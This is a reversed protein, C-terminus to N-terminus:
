SQRGGVTGNATTWARKQGAVNLDLIWGEGIRANLLFWGTRIIRFPCSAKIKRYKLGDPDEIGKADLAPFRKKIESLVTAAITAPLKFEEDLSDRVEQLSFNEISDGTLAETWERLAKDVQRKTQEIQQANM